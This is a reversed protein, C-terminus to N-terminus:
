PFLPTKMVLPSALETLLLLPCPQDVFEVLYLYTKLPKKEILLDPNVMM